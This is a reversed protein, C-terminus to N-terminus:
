KIYYGSVRWSGDKEKMPTITEVSSKKKEFSTEFQIVVYEGDPAGPLSTTYQKSKLKRSIVKGLPSRVANVAQEWQKETVTGKFYGAATEWSKGYNGQDVLALWNMAAEVAKEQGKSDAPSPQTFGLTFFFFLTLGAFVGKKRGM